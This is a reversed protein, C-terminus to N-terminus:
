PGRPRRFKMNRRQKRNLGLKEAIDKEMEERLKEDKRLEEAHEKIKQMVRRERELFDKEVDTPVDAM